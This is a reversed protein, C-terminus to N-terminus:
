IRFTDAKDHYITDFGAFPRSYADWSLVIAPKGWPSMITGALNVIPIVDINWGLYTGVDIDTLEPNDLGLYFQNLSASMEGTIIGQGIKNVVERIHNPDDYFYRGSLSDYILDDGYISHRKPESKDFTDSTMQMAKSEIATVEEEKLNDSLVKKYNKVLESYFECSAIAGATRRVSISTSSILCVTSAVFTTAPAAYGKGIIKLKDIAPIDKITDLDHDMAYDDLDRKVNETEKIVLYVTGGMGLIGVGTLIEPAHKKLGKGLKKFIGKLRM